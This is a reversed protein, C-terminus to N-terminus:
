GETAHLTGKTIGGGGARGCPLWLRCMDGRCMCGGAEEAAAATAAPMISSSSCEDGLGTQGSWACAFASTAFPASMSSSSALV